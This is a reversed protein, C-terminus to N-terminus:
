ECKIPKPNKIRSLFGFKKGMKKAIYDIGIVMSFFRRDGLEQVTMMIELSMNMATKDESFV